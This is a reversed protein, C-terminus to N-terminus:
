GVRALAEALRTTSRHLHYPVTVARGGWQALAASEPLSDVTYDGGKVWLQPRLAELARGPDDEEFVLVADVCALALLMEVRDDERILPREPGKLRRVSADSNLCVVLCDGLERAAALTRVHGAHLLDFCGGAAVVVGGRDRVARALALADPGGTVPSGAAPSGAALSRAALVTEEPECGLSAVGGAALFDGAASVAARAAARADAGGGLAAVATAAFRDGAGCADAADVRRAAFREPVGGEGCLLAGDAGLTVLVAACGYRERLRRAALLAQAPTAETGAAAAAEALNPTVLAAAAVPEAGRPHPDWVLPVEAGRRQLASRLEPHATLGRGYDSVLIADARDIAALMAADVCPLPPPACGEDIRCLPGAATSLRTKVPTPAGSEGAVLSIGDLLERLRGARGDSSLATVLEVEHGDRRLLSAVLGAGGARSRRSTVDVVPVHGDPSLRESVGGLDEDLLVDGVVTVRM